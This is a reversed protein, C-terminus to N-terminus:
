KKTVWLYGGCWRCNSDGCGICSGVVITGSVEAETDVKLYSTSESESEVKFDWSIVHTKIGYIVDTKTANHTDVKFGRKESNEPYKISYNVTGIEANELIVMRIKALETDIKHQEKELYLTNVKHFLSKM